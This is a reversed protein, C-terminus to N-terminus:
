DDKKTVTNLSEMLVSQGRVSAKADEKTEKTDARNEETVQEHILM